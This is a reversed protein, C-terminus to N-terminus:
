KSANLKDVVVEEEGGLLSILVISAISACRM